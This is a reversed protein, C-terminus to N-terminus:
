FHSVDVEPQRVDCFVGKSLSGILSLRYMCTVTTIGPAPEKPFPYCQEGSLDSDLPYRPKKLDINIRQVTIWHIAVKLWQAWSVTSTEEHSLFM